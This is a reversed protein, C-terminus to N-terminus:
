MMGPNFMGQSYGGFGEQFAAPTKLFGAQVPTRMRNLYGSMKGGAGGWGRLSGYAGREAGLAGMYGGGGMLAAGVLPHDNAMAYAGAGMMGAPVAYKAISNSLATDAGHRAARYSSGSVTGLSHLARGLYNTALNPM